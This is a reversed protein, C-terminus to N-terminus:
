RGAAHARHAQRHVANEVAASTAPIRQINPLAAPSGTTLFRQAPDHHAAASVAADLRPGVAVITACRRQVLSNVYPRITATGANPPVVLRQANIPTREAAAEIGAWVSLAAPSAANDTILCVRTNRSVNRVVVPATTSGSALVLWVTTGVAVLVVAALVASLPQPRRRFATSFDMLRSEVYPKGTM